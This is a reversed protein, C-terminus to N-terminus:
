KRNRLHPPVYRGSSAEGGCEKNRLHPPIYSGKPPATGTEQPVAAEVSSMSSLPSKKSADDDEAGWTDGGKDTEKSVAPSEKRNVVKKPANGESVDSKKAKESKEKKIVSADGRLQGKQEGKIGMQSRMDMKFSQIDGKYPTIRKHDCIWIEKAVQSILRMDHSVLM